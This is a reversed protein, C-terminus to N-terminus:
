KDQVGIKHRILDSVLAFFSKKDMTINQTETNVNHKELLQKVAKIEDGLLDSLQVKENGKGFLVYTVKDVLDKENVPSCCFTLAGDVYFVVTITNNRKPIIHLEAKYPM